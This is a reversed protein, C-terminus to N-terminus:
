RESGALQLLKAQTRLGRAPTHLVLKLSPQDSIRYTTFELDM